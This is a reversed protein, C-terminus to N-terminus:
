VRAWHAAFHARAKTGVDDASECFIVYKTHNGPAPM